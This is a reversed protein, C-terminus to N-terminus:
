TINRTGLNILTPVAAQKIKKERWIPPKSKQM